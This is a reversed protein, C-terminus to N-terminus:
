CIMRTMMQSLFESMSHKIRLSLYSHPWRVLTPSVRVEVIVHCTSCALSGECAGTCTHLPDDMGRALGTRVRSTSTTQTRWKLCVPAWPHRLRRSAAMKIMRSHSASEPRSPPPTALLPQTVDLVCTPEGPQPKAGGGHQVCSSTHLAHSSRCPTALSAAPISWWSPVAATSSCQRQLVSQVLRALQRANSAMTTIFTICLCHHM